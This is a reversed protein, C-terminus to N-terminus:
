PLSKIHFFPFFSPDLASWGNPRQHEYNKITDELELGETVHNM